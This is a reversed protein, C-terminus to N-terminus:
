IHPIPAPPTTNYYLACDGQNTLRNAVQYAESVLANTTDIYGNATNEWTALEANTGAVFSDLTRPRGSTPQYAPLLAQAEEYAAWDAPASSVARQLPAMDAALQGADNGVTTADDSMSAADTGAGASEDCLDGPYKRADSEVTSFDQKVVVVDSALTSLDTRVAGLAGEDGAVTAAANDITSEESGIKEESALSSSTIAAAESNSEQVNAAMEQVVQGYRAPSAVQSFTLGDLPGNEHYELSIAGGKISGFVTEGDVNLNLMGDRSTGSFDVVQSALALQPATGSLSEINAIGTVTGDTLGATVELLVAETGDNSLYYKVGPLTAGTGSSLGLQPSATTTAASTATIPAQSCGTDMGFDSVVSAESAPPDAGLGDACMAQDTPGAFKQWAGRQLQAIGWGSYGADPAPAVVDYLYWSPQKTDQSVYIYYNTGLASELDSNDQLHINPDYEEFATIFSSSVHRWPGGSGSPAQLPQGNPATLGPNPNSVAVTAAVKAPVTTAEATKAPVATDGVGGPANCISSSEAASVIERVQEGTLQVHNTGGFNLTSEMSSLIAKNSHGLFVGGCAVGSLANLWDDVSQANHHALGAVLAVRISPYKAVAALYAQGTAPAAASVPGRAPRVGTTQAPGVTSPTVATTAKGSGPQRANGNHNSVAVLAVVTVLVLGMLFVVVKM